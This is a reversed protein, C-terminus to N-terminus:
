DGAPFAYTSPVQPTASASGYWFAIEQHPRLVIAAPDGVFVQGNVYVRLVNGNATTLGGVQGTTLRVGWETFVQGLTYPTDTPSEIHVIGSADHTHLSTIGTAKGNDILYGVYAPVTVKTGNDIIDIHAHYHVQLTESGQVHLGAAGIYPAADAPIPWPPLSTSLVIGTTPQEFGTTPVTSQGSGHTTSGGGSLLLGIIVAVAVVASAGGAWWVRRRRRAQAEAEARARRATEQREHRDSASTQSRHKADKDSQRTSV